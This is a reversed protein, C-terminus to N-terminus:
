HCPEAFSAHGKAFKYCTTSDGFLIESLFLTDDQEFYMIRRDDFRDTWRGTKDKLLVVGYAGMKVTYEQASNAGEKKEALVFDDNSGRVELDQVRKKSVLAITYRAIDEESFIKLPRKKEQDIKEYKDPQQRCSYSFLSLAFIIWIRRMDNGHRVIPRIGRDKTVQFFM